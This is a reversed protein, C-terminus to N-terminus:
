FGYQDVLRDLWGDEGTPAIGGAWVYGEVEEGDVEATVPWWALGGVQEFGGTIELHDGARVVALAPEETGPAARLVLEPIAVDAQGGARLRNADSPLLGDPGDIAVIALALVLNVLAVLGTLRWLAGRLWGTRRAARGGLRYLRASV